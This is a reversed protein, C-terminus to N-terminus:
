FSSPSKSEKSDNGHRRGDTSVDSRTTGTCQANRMNSLVEIPRLFAIPEPAPDSTPDDAASWDRDDTSRCYGDNADGGPLAAVLAATAIDSRLLDPLCDFPPSVWLRDALDVIDVLTQRAQEEHSTVTEAVPTRDVSNSSRSGRDSALPVMRCVCQFLCRDDDPRNDNTNYNDNNENNNM